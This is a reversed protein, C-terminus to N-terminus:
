DQKRRPAARSARSPSGRRAAPRASLSGSGRRNKKKVKAGARGGTPVAHRRYLLAVNGIRQVLTANLRTCMDAVIADRQTRDESVVRVKMLEHHELQENIERLVSETLGHQGLRVIPELEHGRRRLSLLHTKELMTVGVIVGYLARLIAPSPYM